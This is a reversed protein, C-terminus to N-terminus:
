LRPNLTMGNEDLYQRPLSERGRDLCTPERDNSAIREIYRRYERRNSTGKIKQRVFEAGHECKAKHLNHLSCMIQLNPLSTTGGLSLPRRHDIQLWRTSGCRRGEEGVFECRHGARLYVQARWKVPIYRSSSPKPSTERKAKPTKAVILHDVAEEIIHELRGAPYKHALLGKLRELKQKLREGAAFNIQYCKERVTELSENNQEQGDVGSKLSSKGSDMPDTKPSPNESGIVAADFGTDLPNKPVERDPLRRIDDKPAARPAMKDVLMGEAARKTKGVFKCLFMEIDTQRDLHPCLLAAVTLNIRSDEIMKLLISHKRIKAVVQLRRYVSGESLGLESVSFEYLSSYGKALHIRREAVETLLRLTQALHRNENRVSEKLKEVLHKDVNNM